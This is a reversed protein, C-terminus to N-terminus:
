NGSTDGPFLRKASKRGAANLRRKMGKKKARYTPYFSPKAAVHKQSGDALTSMHGHEIHPGIFAGHEDQADAIIRYSLDRDPNPYEHISDRFQGPQKETEDVPAARKQAAVLEEVESKLVPAVDAKMGAPLALLRAMVKEKNLMKADAM